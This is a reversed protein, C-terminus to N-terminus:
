DNEWDDEPGRYSAADSTKFEVTTPQQLYEMRSVDKASGKLSQRVDLLVRAVDQLTVNAHQVVFTEGDIRSVDQGTAVMSSASGSLEVRSADKTHVTLDTFTGDVELYGIDQTNITMAGGSFGNVTMRSADNVSVATLSPVTVRLTTHRSMCFIICMDHTNISHVSLVGNEVVPEHTAHGREGAVMTVKYAPGQEVEIRDIGNGTIQTFDKLAFSKESTEDYKAIIPELQPAVTFVTVGGIVLAILWLSSIAVTGEGSFLNKRTMLSSGCVLFFLVPAFAVFYASVLFVGYQTTTMADHLPLGIYPSNPNLFLALLVFTLWAIVLAAGVTIIGGLIRGILPIVFGLVKGIGRAISGVVQFPLAVIKAFANERKEKPMVADIKQQIAALTVRGGTMEVKEAATRAEPVIVWMIIYLLVGFGGMLLSLGFILRVIIPDIEFYNAIGACVGAIIQNDADRYLKLKKFPAYHGFPPTKESHTQGADFKEFDEVTGMTAIVAEVDKMEIVKRKKGLAETFEEAMRSEIDSVIEDADPSHKFHARIAHLYRELMAYAQEEIIFPFNGISVTLTKFM